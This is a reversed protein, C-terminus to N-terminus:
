SFIGKYNEWPHPDDKSGITVLYEYLYTENAPRKDPGIVDNFSRTTIGEM